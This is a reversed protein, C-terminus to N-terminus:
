KELRYVVFEKQPLGFCITYPLRDNGYFGGYCGMTRFPWSYFRITDLPLLRLDKNIMECANYDGPITENMLYEGAIPQPTEIRVNKYHAHYLYWDYSLRGFYWTNSPAYGKKALTEPLRRDADCQLYDGISLSAAFLFSSVLATSFFFQRHKPALLTLEEGLIFLGLPVLPLIYRMSASPMINLVLIYLIAFSAILAPEHPRYTGQKSGKFFIVMRYLQWLGASAFVAYAAGFWFPKKLVVILLVGWLGCLFMTVVLEVIRRRGIMLWLWFLPLLLAGGFYGLNREMRYRIDGPLFSFWGISIYHIKRYVILSHVVWALPLAVAPALWLVLERWKRAYLLYAPCLVFLPLANVKTLAALGALTGSALFLWPRPSRLACLFVAFSALMLGTVAVDWMINTANVFLVPSVTWLLTGWLRFASNYFFGLLTWVSFICLLYFVLMVAHLPWERSGAVAIFPALLLPLLPPHGTRYFVSTEPMDTHDHLVMHRGYDGLPPNLADVLFQSGTHVLMDADIHLAKNIFPIYCILATLVLVLRQGRSSQTIWKIM